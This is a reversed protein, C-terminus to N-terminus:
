SPALPTIIAVYGLGDPVITFDADAVVTSFSPLPHIVGQAILSMRGFLGCVIVPAGTVAIRQPGTLKWRELVFHDGGLCRTRRNFGDFDDQGHTPRITKASPLGTTIVLVIM